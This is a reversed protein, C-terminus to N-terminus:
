NKVSIWYESLCDFKRIVRAPSGFAICYDPIDITVVSNAAIGCNKGVSTFL